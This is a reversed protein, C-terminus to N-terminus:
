EEDGQEVDSKKIPASRYDKVRAFRQYRNVAQNHEQLSTSFYHEGNGKAVFYLYSSSAPKAAAQISRLGPMGIPTPPLGKYKYTNYPSDISLDKKRINGDYSQSLAYIVTPDTQLKMNIRLRNIFVSAILEREHDAGTEKEILSAMILMEYPNRYPLDADRLQWQQDLVQQMKKIAQAIITSAEDDLSYYYTDPFVWGEISEYPLDFDKTQYSLDVGLLDQLRDNVQRLSWGEILTVSRYSVQGENLMRLMDAITDQRKFIYEGRRILTKDHMRAYLSVFRPFEILDDVVLDSLVSNLTAGDEVVYSYSVEYGLKLQREPFDFYFYYVAYAIFAAMFVPMVALFKRM